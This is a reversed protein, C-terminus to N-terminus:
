PLHGIWEIHCQLRSDSNSLACLKYFLQHHLLKPHRLGGEPNTEAISRSLKTCIQLYISATTLGLFADKPCSQGSYCSDNDCHCFCDQHTIPDFTGLNAHLWQIKNDNSNACRMSWTKQAGFADLTHMRRGSNAHTCSWSNRPFLFLRLLIILSDPSAGFFLCLFSVFECHWFRVIESMAIGQSDLTVYM